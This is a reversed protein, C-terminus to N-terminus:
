VKEKKSGPKNYSTKVRDDLKNYAELRAALRKQAKKSQKM